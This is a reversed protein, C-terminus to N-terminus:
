SPGPRRGALLDYVRADALTNAVLAAGSFDHAASHGAPVAVAIAGAAVAARCGNQSDEFVITEAPAVGFREAAKLYIEPNPKGQVVSEATLLFEFRPELDFRRLLDRTFRVGSSTGIAKPIGARELALLLEAVGPMLALHRDLLPPFMAEAEAALEGVTCDLGHWEIMMGLAVEGPRGMVKGILEPSFDKGRRQMMAQGIQQHLEETNFMLGDLDFVAARPPQRDPM